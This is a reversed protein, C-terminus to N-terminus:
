CRIWNLDLSRLILSNLISIAHIDLNIEKASNFFLYM